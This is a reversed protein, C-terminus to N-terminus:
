TMVNHPPKVLWNPFVLFETKCHAWPAVVLRIDQCVVVFYLKAIGRM